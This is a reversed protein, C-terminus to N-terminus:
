NVMSPCYHLGHSTKTDLFNKLIEKALRVHYIFDQSCHAPRSFLPLKNRKTLHTIPKTGEVMRNTNPVSLFNYSGSVGALTGRFCSLVFGFVLLVTFQTIASICFWRVISILVWLGLPCYSLLFLSIYGVHFFFPFSHFTHAVVPGWSWLWLRVFGCCWLAVALYAKSNVGHLFM